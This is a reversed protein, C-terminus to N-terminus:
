WSKFMCTDVPLGQYQGLGMSDSGLEGLHAQVEHFALSLGPEFEILELKMQVESTGSRALNEKSWNITM